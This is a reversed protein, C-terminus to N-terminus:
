FFNGALSSSLDSPGIEPTSLSELEFLYIAFKAFYWVASATGKILLAVNCYVGSEDTVGPPLIFKSSLYLCALLGKEPM